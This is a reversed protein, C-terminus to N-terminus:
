NIPIDQPVVAEPEGPEHESMFRCSGEGERRSRQDRVAQVYRQAYEKTAQAYREDYSIPARHQYPHVRDLHYQYYPLLKVLPTVSESSFGVKEHSIGDDDEETFVGYQLPLAAANTDIRPCHSAASIARSCSGALPVGPSIRKASYFILIAVLATWLALAALAAGPSFACGTISYAYQLDGTHKSPQRLNGQSDTVDLKVFFLSRAILWHLLASAGLLPISYKYPIQLWFTSRQKGRPRSVRLPKRTWAYRSYEEALVMCTLINNYFLYAFSVSVQPANALIVNATIPLGLSIGALNSVAFTGFNWERDDGTGTILLGLGIVM